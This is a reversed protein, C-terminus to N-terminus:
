RGNFEIVKTPINRLPEIDNVVSVARNCGHRYNGTMTESSFSLVNEYKRNLSDRANVGGCLRPKGGAIKKRCFM